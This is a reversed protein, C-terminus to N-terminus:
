SNKFWSPNNHQKLVGHSKKMEEQRKFKRDWREQEPVPRKFKAKWALPFNQVRLFCEGSRIMRNSKKYALQRFSALFM